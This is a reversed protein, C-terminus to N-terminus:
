DTYLAPIDLGSFDLRFLLQNSFFSVSFILSFGLKYVWGRYFEATYEFKETTANYIGAEEYSFTQYPDSTLIPEYKCANPLM